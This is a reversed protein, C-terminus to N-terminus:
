TIMSATYKLCDYSISFYLDFALRTNFTLYTFYLDLHRGTPGVQRLAQLTTLAPRAAGEEGQIAGLVDMGLANALQAYTQSLRAAPAPCRM